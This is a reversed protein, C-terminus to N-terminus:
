IGQELVKRYIDATKEATQSWQYTKAHNYNLEIWEKPFDCLQHLGKTISDIELPDCYYVNDGLVERTAGKDGVLIPKKRAMAELPPIGFGEYYTPFALGSSHDYLQLLEDDTIHNLCQVNPKLELKEILDITKSSGSSMHGALILNYEDKLGSDYYAQILSNVNKRESIAGVFLFFPSTDNKVLSKEFLLKSLGLHTVSIKDFSVDFYKNLDKKTTDSVTIIHDSKNLINELEKRKKVKFEETAFRSGEDTFLFVDHVTSVLRNFSKPVKFDTTHTLDNKKNFVKDLSSYFRYPEIDKIYKRKNLRSLPFLGELEFENSKKLEEFINQAYRAIGTPFRGMLCSLELGIKYKV